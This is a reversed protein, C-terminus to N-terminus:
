GRTLPREYSIDSGDRRGGSQRLVLETATKSCDGTLKWEPVVQRLAIRWEGGRREFRDVYRGGSLDMVDEGEQRNTALFYTEVHATDGDLDIVTNTVYHQCGARKEQRGWFWAVFETPTGTHSNHHDVADEHFASLVLEEDLRDIGRTCRQLCDLIAQRDLLARLASPDIEDM